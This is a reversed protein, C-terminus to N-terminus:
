LGALAGPAVRVEGVPRGHGLVPRTLLPSLAAPEAVLRALVAATLPLVARANGDDAKVVVGRGDPLGVAMCGEAGGKCVLGPVALHLALDDRGDGSAYEPFERYADAVLKAPGDGAAAIRGFARALGTMSTAFLPAGCGDTTAPSHGGCWEDVTAAVAQQLPHAPDLYSGVDWGARVCTRLMAAHKGSCNQTLSSADRGARLWVVRAAEDLPLDPTNQLAEVGLGVGALLERVGTLHYDQGSHSAAALALLRGEVDLGSSLMAVAQVPKLSSRAYMPSAVDGLSFQVQGDAGTVVVRARHICEVLDGRVVEVLVPSDPTMAAISM